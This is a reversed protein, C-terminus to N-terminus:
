TLVKMLFRKIPEIAKTRALAELAKANTILTEVRTKVPPHEDLWSAAPSQKVNKTWWKEMKQLASALDRGYGYQVTALDSRTEQHRGIFVFGLSIMIYLILPLFPLIFASGVSIGINISTYTARTGTDNNKVHEAEHILVALVERENLIKILGNTVFIDHTNTVVMANPIDSPMDPNKKKFEKDPLDFKFIRWDDDGLIANLKKEYEFGRKSQTMLYNKVATQQYSIFLKMLTSVVAGVGIAAVLIPEEQLQEEKSHYEQLQDLYTDLM